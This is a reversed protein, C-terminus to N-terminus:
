ARTALASRGAVLAAAQEAVRAGLREATAIDAPHVAEAGGDLPTQAGAGAWFGLRNLGHESADLANWGPALGLSGWIM